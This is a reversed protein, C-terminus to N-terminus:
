KRIALCANNSHALACSTAMPDDSAAILKSQYMVCSAVATTLFLFISVIISAVFRDESNM